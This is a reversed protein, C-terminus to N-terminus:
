DEKFLEELVEKEIEIDKEDKGVTALVNLGTIKEIMYLNDRHMFDNKDFNNLIIGKIPIGCMETYEVTTIVSNITGLGGDAVIIVDKNLYKILDPM